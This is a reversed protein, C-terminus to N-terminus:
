KKDPIFTEKSDLFCFKKKNANLSIVSGVTAAIILIRSNPKINTCVTLAMYTAIVSLISGQAIAWAIEQKARPGKQITHFYKIEYDGTQRTSVNKSEDNPIAM